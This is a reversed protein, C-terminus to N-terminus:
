RPLKDVYDDVPLLETAEKSRRFKVSGERVACLSVLM